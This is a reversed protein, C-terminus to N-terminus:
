NDRLKKKKEEYMLKDAKNILDQVNSAGDNIAIGVSAGIDIEHGEITYSIGLVDRVRQATLNAQVQSVDELLVLFEDGGYRGISDRPRVVGQLRRGVQKLLEDGVQHGLNDNVQKFRDLDVFLIAFHYKDNINYRGLCREIKEIIVARNPLETLPDQSAQTSLKDILRAYGLMNGIWDCLTDLFELDADLFPQDTAAMSSFNLTGYKKGDVIISKGIYSEIGLETCPHNQLESNKVDSISLAKDSSVTVSCFTKALDFEQGKHIDFGPAHVHEVTYTDGDIHSVIGIQAHFLKCGARLIEEFQQDISLDRKSIVGFITQMLELQHTEKQSSM